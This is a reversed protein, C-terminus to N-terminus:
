TERAYLLLNPSGTGIDRLRGPSAHELVCNHVDEPSAVGNREVCLAAVGAVHPSAMSTGSLTTSGGGRRASAVDSGPAFIDVCPGANSFSARRDLRNTAGVGLAQVIRAPSFNCADADDNGAAVAYVVGARMSNCVALDLAPSVGGGLSMNAVALGGIRRVQQTVWDVGRIVDSDTGAGNTLVKVPHLVVKKAIGFETGGVTGAVHTGHGHDDRVGGGDASFGEGIRDQFDPHDVDLGTDIVYVHVGNGASGPEYRGDLPLDRQDTRDLGWTVDAAPSPLPAVRKRGERQVFAVNPDAAMERATAVDMQCAFGSLAGDFTRVDTVAYSQALSQVTVATARGQAPEKMVVIYRDPIPDEVEVIGSLSSPDACDFGARPPPPDPVPGPEAPDCGPGWAAFLIATVWLRSIRM